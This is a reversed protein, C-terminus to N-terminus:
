EQAQFMLGSANRLRRKRIRDSTIRDIAQASVAEEPITVKQGDVKMKNDEIKVAEITGLKLNGKQIADLNLYVPAIVVKGSAISFARYSLIQIPHFVKRPIIKEPLSLKYHTRFAIMDGYKFVYDESLDNWYLIDELTCKHTRMLLRLHNEDKIRRICKIPNDPLIELIQQYRSMCNRQEAILRAPLVLIPDNASSPIYYKKYGPNLLKLTDVSIKYTNSLESFSRYGNELQLTDTLILEDPLMKAKIQHFEHYEYSYVVAIFYPVYMQTEKPLMHQIDWYNRNTGKVYKDVRGPGCNYAALALLWDDYREYLQKLMTTAADTAKYTDSREDLYSNIRLKYLIGTSSIFQWLGVASAHSRAVANLNSEVIPLYKLHEPMNKKALYEEFVPFYMKTRGLTRETATRYRSLRHLIHNKIDQTLRYQIEGSIKQLRDKIQEDNFEPYSTYNGSPLYLTDRDLEPGFLKDNSLSIDLQFCFLLLFINLTRFLM